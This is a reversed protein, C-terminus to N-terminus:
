ASSPCDAWRHRGRLHPHHAPPRAQRRGRGRTSVAAPRRDRGPSRPPDDEGRRRPGLSRQRARYVIGMGGAAILELLEYDGFSRPAPPVLRSPQSIRRSPPISRLRPPPSTGRPDAVVETDAVAARPIAPQGRSTTDRARLGDLRRLLELTEEAPEPQERPTASDLPPRGRGIAEDCAELWKIYPDSDRSAEENPDSM